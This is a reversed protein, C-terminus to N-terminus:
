TLPEVKVKTVGDHVFGLVRAARRSLDIIRGKAYPGRDNVTVVVSRHNELNTVRVRTGLDLTRHAATLAGDDYHEGNATLNGVLSSHYFSAIGVQIAGIAHAMRAPSLVDTASALLPYSASTPAPAIQDVKALDTALRGHPVSACGFGALASVVLALRLFTAKM